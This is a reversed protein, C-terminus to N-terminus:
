KDAEILATAFEVVGKRPKDRENEVQLAHEARAADEGVWAKVAEVSASEPFDQFDEPAESPEEAAKDEGSGQLADLVSKRPNESVLEADIARVARDHDDGVWALIEETTGIPVGDVETVKPAKVQKPKRDAPKKGGARFDRARFNTMVM